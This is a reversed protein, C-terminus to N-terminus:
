FTPWPVTKFRLTPIFECGLDGAFRAHQDRDSYFGNAARNRNTFITEAPLSISRDAPGAAAYGMRDMILQRITWKDDLPQSDADLFQGYITVDRGDVDDSEQVLGAFDPDVGSLGFVVRDASDNVGFDVGTISGYAGVGLWEIGDVVLTGAGTWVYRHGGVFDFDILVALAVTRGAAIAALTGSFFAM